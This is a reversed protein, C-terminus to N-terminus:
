VNLKIEYGRLLYTDTCVQEKRNECVLPIPAFGWLVSRLAISNIEFKLLWLMPSQLYNTINIQSSNNNITQLEHIEYIM